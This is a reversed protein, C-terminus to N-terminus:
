EGRDIIQKHELRLKAILTALAVDAKMWTKNIDKTVWPSLVKIARAVSVRTGVLVLLAWNFKRARKQKLSM